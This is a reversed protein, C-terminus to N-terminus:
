SQDGRARQEFYRAFAVTGLFMLLSLVLAVDLLTGQDTAIGYAGIIAVTSFGVLDLAIVRDPLSPGVFVRYTGLCVTVALLALTIQLGIELLPGPARHDM